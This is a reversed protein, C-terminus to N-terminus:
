TASLMAGSLGAVVGAAAYTLAMGLVYAASLGIAHARTLHAGRGVILGSLIPLMPLVCPTFALLLGAVFFALILLGFGGQFLRAVATDDATAAGFLSGSADSKREGQADRPPVTSAQESGQRLPLVAGGGGAAALTLKAKQDHPIYCVGADACGQSTAVLTAAGAGAKLVPVRIRLEGRYTEVEGFFEDKKRVGPPFEPNGLEASEPQVAFKFKDRYLYYGRAIQYRVEIADPGLVRASFRFADDPELLDQEAGWAPAALLLLLLLRLLM